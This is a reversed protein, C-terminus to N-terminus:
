PRGGVHINAFTLFCSDDFSGVNELQFNAFAVGRHADVSGARVTVAVLGTIGLDWGLPSALPRRGGQGLSM